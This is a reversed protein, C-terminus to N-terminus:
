RRMLPLVLFIMNRVELLTLPDRGLIILTLSSCLRDLYSQLVIQGTSYRNGILLSLRGLLRVGFNLKFCVSSFGLGFKGTAAKDQIKRSDGISTLSQFDKESFVADNYALLAPGQYESLGDVLV